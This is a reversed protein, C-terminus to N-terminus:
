RIALLDLPSANKAGSVVITKTGDSLAITVLNYRTDGPAPKVQEVTAATQGDQSLVLGQFTGRAVLKQAGHLDFYGVASDDGTLAFALRDGAQNWALGVIQDSRNADTVQIPPQSPQTLDYVFLTEGGSKGRQVLALETRQSNFLFPRAGSPPSQDALMQTQVATVKSDALGVTSLNIAGLTLGNPYSLLLTQGGPLLALDDTNATPFYTGGAPSKGVFNITNGGALDTRLIRYFYSIPNACREGVATYVKDNVRLVRGAVFTCGDLSKINTELAREKGGAADWWTLDARDAEKHTNPFFKLVAAGDNELDFANVSDLEISAAGSTASLIRLKGTIFDAGIAADGTYQIYGLRQGDPSFATHGALDCAIASSDGLAVPAASPDTLSVIESPGAGDGHYIVLRNSDPSTVCVAARTGGSAIPQGAGAAVYWALQKADRNWALVRTGGGAVSVAAQSSQAPAATAPVAPVATAPIASAGAPVASAPVASAAAVAANTAPVATPAQANTPAANSATTPPVATPPAVSPAPAPASPAATSAAVQPQAGAATPATSGERTPTAAPAGQTPATTLATVPAAGSPSAANVVTALLTPTSAPTLSQGSFNCGAALVALVFLVFVSRRRTSM